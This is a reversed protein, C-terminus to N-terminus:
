TYLYRNIKPVMSYDKDVRLPLTSTPITPTYSLRSIVEDFPVQSREYLEKYTIDKLQNNEIYPKVSMDALEIYAQLLAETSTVIQSINSSTTHSTHSTNHSTHSTTTAHTTTTTTHSTTLPPPPCSKLRNIITKAAQCRSLSINSKYTSSSM